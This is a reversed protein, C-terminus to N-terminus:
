RIIPSLRGIAASQFCATNRIGQHRRNNAHHVSSQAMWAYVQQTDKLPSQQTVQLGLAATTQVTSDQLLLVQSNHLTVKVLLEKSM